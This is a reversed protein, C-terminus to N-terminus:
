IARASALDGTRCALERYHAASDHLEAAEAAHALERLADSLCFLADATAHPSAVFKRVLTDLDPPIM